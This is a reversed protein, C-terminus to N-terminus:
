SSSLVMFTCNTVMSGKISLVGPFIAIGISTINSFSFTLLLIHYLNFLCSHALLRTRSIDRRFQNVYENLKIKDMNTPTSHSLGRRAVAKRVTKLCGSKM